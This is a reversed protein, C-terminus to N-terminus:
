AHTTTESLQAVLAELRTLRDEITLGWSKALPPDTDDDEPMDGLVFARKGSEDEVIAGDEGQDVIMFKRQARAKHGHIRDWTVPMYKADGALEHAVQCGHRGVAVVRGTLPGHEDHSFYIEDGHIVSHSPQQPNLPRQQM